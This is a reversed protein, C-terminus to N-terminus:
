GFVEGTEPDIDHGDWTQWNPVPFEVGLDNIAFAQLQDLYKSMDRVGLDAVSKLKRVTRKKRQGAITIIKIDYGLFQRKMAEHWAEATWQGGLAQRAIVRLCPGFYFRLQKLTKSDEFEGAVVVVKKGDTLMKKCYPWIRTKFEVHGHEQNELLVTLGPKVNLKM